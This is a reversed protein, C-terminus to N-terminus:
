KGATTRVGLELIMTVPPKGNEAEQVPGAVLREPALGARDKLERIVADRRTAALNRLEEEALPATDVLHQFLARYFEQDDSGKGLLALVPNVRRAKVGASSEYAAQFEAMAGTGGALEELGHQTKAHDFAVPGPDEGPSLAVDLLRALSGRVAMDRLSKGDLDRAFVGHVTLTLQPRQNLAAAVQQLKEREPPAPESKGPEFFVRDPQTSGAGFLAGLAQFPATVIKTLLNLVAQWIVHGYSFKPNDLNGRVPVAVDIKDEGDTLLAIALDLPLDLASPSEVREGLRFNRMVARHDGLLESDKIKYGLDLDLRGSAVRRGAFTVTYPSIPLLEVNRFKVKIDTFHKPDLPALTGEAGAQGYQDVLGSFQLTARATPDGTINLVTGKFQEIRTTFPLALSLDAFEVVGNELRVRELQLPFSDKEPQKAPMPSTEPSAAPAQEKVLRALNLSGDARIVIKAAPKEVNIEAIALSPPDMSFAVGNAMLEQWALLRDKGGSEELLLDNIGVRGEIALGPGARDTQKAQYALQSDLSLDGSPLRLQLYKGLLPELPRLNLHEVKLKTSIKEGNQALTGETEVIGGQAVQTRASFRIPEPSATDLGEAVLGLDRLDYELAPDFGQDAFDLDFDVLELRELLFRWDPLSPGPPHEESQGAPETPAPGFVALQRITGAATRQVEARGGGLILSEVQIKRDALAFSGGAVRAEALNWLPEGVATERSAISRLMLTLDSVRLAPPGAGVEAEAALDLSSEGIELFFPISRKQDSYHLALETLSFTDVKLRWPDPGPGEQGGEGGENAAAAISVEGEKAPPQYLRQWDLLGDQGVEASLEGQHVTISPLHLERRALDFRAEAVKLAALQLLSRGGEKERVVLDDLRFLLPQVVFDTKGAVHSFRYDLKLHAHGEPRALRFREQFFEWLVAPQFENVILTGHSALPVLSVEGWWALRGGQPLIATVKYAGSQEPLTAISSCEIALPAFIAMVPQPGSHDTFHLTGESLNFRKFLLRVPRDAESQEPGPSKGKGAMRDLLRDLNLRGTQDLVLHLTPSEVTIDAFTWAWRVISELNFDVLLRRYELLPEAASDALQFDKVELTFLFPNIRVQGLSLRHGLQQDVYPPLYRKALWPALFFGGLTYGLLTLGLGITWRNRLWRRWAPKYGAAKLMVENKEAM